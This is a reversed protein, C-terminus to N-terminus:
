TPSQTVGAIQTTMQFADALEQSKTAPEFVSPDNGYIETLLAALANGLEHNMKEVLDDLFLKVYWVDAKEPWLVRPADIQQRILRSIKVADSKTIVGANHVITHRLQLVLAVIERKGQLSAPQQGPKPLLFFNGREPEGPPGLVRKFRRTIEDCDLWTASECLAKGVSEENFHAAIAQGKVSFVDLRDDAVAHAVNDVCVAAIEKLYREFAEVLNLLVMSQLRHIHREYAAQYVNTRALNREVYLLLNWSDNAFRRHHRIPATAEDALEVVHTPIQHFYNASPVPVKAM